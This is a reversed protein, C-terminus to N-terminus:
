GNQAVKIAAALGARRSERLPGDGRSNDEFAIVMEDTVETIEPVLRVLNAPLDARKFRVIEVARSTDLHGHWGGGETHRYVRALTPRGSTDFYFGPETPAPPKIEEIDWDCLSLNTPTTTGEIHFRFRHALQGKLTGELTASTEKNTIKHTNNTM